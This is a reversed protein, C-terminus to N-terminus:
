IWGLKVYRHCLKEVEEPAMYIPFWEIENNSKMLSFQILDNNKRISHVHEWYKKIEILLDEM